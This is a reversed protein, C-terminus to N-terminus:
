IRKKNKDKEKKEGEKEFQKELESFDLDELMKNLADMDIGEMLSEMESMDMQQFMMMGQQMLQGLADPDLDEGFVDGFLTSLDGNMLMNMQTSDLFEGLQFMENNLLSSLDISDMVGELQILADDIAENMESSNIDSDNKKQSQANVTFTLALFLIFNVVRKM